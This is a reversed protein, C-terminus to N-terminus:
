LGNSEVQAKSYKWLKVDLKIISYLVKPSIRAVIIFIYTYIYRNRMIINAIVIVLGSVKDTLYTTTSYTGYVMGHSQNYMNM